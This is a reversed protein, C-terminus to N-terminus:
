IRRIKMAAIATTMLPQENLTLVLVAVDFVLEVLEFLGFSVAFVSVAGAAVEAETAALCSQEDNEIGPLTNM